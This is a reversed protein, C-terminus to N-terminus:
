RWAITQGLQTFRGLLRLFDMSRTDVADGFAVRQGASARLSRALSPPRCDTVADVGIRGAVRRHRHRRSQRRHHRRASARARHCLSACSLILFFWFWLDGGFRSDSASRSDIALRAADFIALPARIAV